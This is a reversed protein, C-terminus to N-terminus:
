RNLRVMVRGGKLRTSLLHVDGSAPNRGDFECSILMFAEFQFWPSAAAAMNAALPVHKASIPIMSPLSENALKWDV